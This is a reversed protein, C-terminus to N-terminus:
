CVGSSVPTCPIPFPLASVPVFFPCWFDHLLVMSIPVTFPQRPNAWDKNGRGDQFLPPANLNTGTGQNAGPNDVQRRKVEDCREDLEIQCSVITQGKMVLCFMACLPWRTNKNFRAANCLWHWKDEVHEQVQWKLPSGCLERLFTRGM